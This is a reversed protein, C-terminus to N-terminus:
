PSEPAIEEEAAGHHEAELLPQREPPPAEEPRAAGGRGALTAAVSAEAPGAAEEDSEVWAEDEQRGALVWAALLLAVGALGLVGAAPGGFRAM